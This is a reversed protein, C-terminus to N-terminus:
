TPKRSRETVGVKYNKLTGPILPLDTSTGVIPQCLDVRCRVVLHSRDVMIYDFDIKEM